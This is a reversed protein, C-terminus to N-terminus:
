PGAPAAALPDPIFEADPGAMPEKSLDLHLYSEAHKGAYIIKDGLLLVGIDSGYVNPAWDRKFNLSIFAVGDRSLNFITWGELTLHEAMQEPNKLEPAPDADKFYGEIAARDAQNHEHAALLAAMMRPKLVGYEKKMLTFAALQAPSAEPGDQGSKLSVPCRIEKKPGSTETVPTWFYSQGERSLRALAEADDVRPLRQTVDYEVPEGDEGATQLSEVYKEFILPSAMLFLVAGLGIIGLSAFVIKVPSDFFGEKPIMEKITLRHTAQYLPPNRSYLHNFLATRAEENAFAAQPLVVARDSQYFLYLLQDDYYIQKIQDPQLALRARPTSVLLYDATAQIDVEETREEAPRRDVEKVARAQVLKLAQSSDFLINYLNLGFFFISPLIWFSFRTEESVLSGVAYIFLSLLWFAMWLASRKRATWQAEGFGAGRMLMFEAVQILMDRTLTYRLNM